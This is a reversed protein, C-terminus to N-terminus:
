ARDLHLAAALTAQAALRVNAMDVLEPVDGPQHYNPDAYPFSGINIVAARYGAKVFSGDDDNVSPRRVKTQRLEVGYAAVVEAMRDALREGEPTAFATVNTRAGAASDAAGKGALGDLNLVAIIDDGRARAQTAALVSTWPQHEENCFLFRVTRLPAYDALVRALEINAVTGGCNDHAGPSDVWSQSDKHSVLLIIQEPRQSGRREAYLNYATYWPDNPEPAASHLGPGPRAAQVQAAEDWVAYGYSTLERRILDDAEYLTCRDHGPVTYNLKRFPIPDRSLRFLLRSMRGEDLRAMAQRVADLTDM